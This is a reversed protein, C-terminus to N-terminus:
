FSIEELLKGKTWHEFKRQTIRYHNYQVSDADSYFRVNDWYQVLVLKVDEMRAVALDGEWKVKLSTPWPDSEDGVPFTETCYNCDSFELQLPRRVDQLQIANYRRGLKYKLPDYGVDMVFVYWRRNPLGVLQSSLKKPIGTISLRQGKPRIPIDKSIAESEADNLQFQNGNLPNGLSHYSIRPFTYYELETTNATADLAADAKAVFFADGDEFCVRQVPNYNFEAPRVTGDASIVSRIRQLIAHNLSIICLAVEGVVKFREETVFEVTLPPINSADRSSLTAAGPPGFCNTM